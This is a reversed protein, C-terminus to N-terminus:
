WMTELQRSQLPKLFKRGLKQKLLVSKMLEVPQHVVTFQHEVCLLQHYVSLPHQHLVSAALKLLWLFSKPLKDLDVDHGRPDREIMWFSRQWLNFDPVVLKLKNQEHKQFLREFDPDETRNIDDEDLELETEDESESFISTEHFTEPGGDDDDSDSENTKFQKDKRIKERWMQRKELVKALQKKHFEEAASSEDLEDRKKLEEQRL